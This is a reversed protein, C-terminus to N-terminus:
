HKPNVAEGIYLSTLIGFIYAQIASVFIELVTMVVAFPVAAIAILYNKFFVILGLIVFIITHGALMNVTLRIFLSFPKAIASIVEIPTVLVYMWAPVAKPAFTRVYGKIGGAKLNSIQVVFFVIVAMTLPVIPNSTPTYAGPLIGVMNNALIFIFVASVFPFWKEGNKKGMMNYIMNRKLFEVLIEVVTQRKSPYIKPKIVLLFFLLFFLATGAFMWLVLNTISIDFWGLRIDVIKELHFHELVELTQETEM